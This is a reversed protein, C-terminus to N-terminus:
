WNSQATDDVVHKINFLYTSRRPSPNRTFTRGSHLRVLIQARCGKPNRQLRVPDYGAEFVFLPAADKAPLRSVLDL